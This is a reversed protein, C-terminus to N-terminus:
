VSSITTPAATTSIGFNGKTRIIRSECTSLPMSSGKTRIKMIRSILLCSRIPSHTLGRHNLTTDHIVITSIMPKVSAYTAIIIWRPWQPPEAWVRLHGRLRLCFAALCHKRRGFWHFREDAEDSALLDDEIRIQRHKISNFGAM